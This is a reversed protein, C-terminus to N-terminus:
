SQQRSFRVKGTIDRELLVAGNRDTISLARYNLDRDEISIIDQVHVGFSLTTKRAGLQYSQAQRSTTKGLM